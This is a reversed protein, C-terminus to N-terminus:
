ESWTCTLGLIMKELFDGFNCYEALSRLLEAVFMIAMSEGAKRFRSNFRYRQMVESPAQSYHKTLDDVIHEFMKASPKAPALLSRALRYTCPNM